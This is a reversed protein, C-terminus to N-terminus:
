GGVVDRALKITYVIRMFKTNADTTGLAEDADTPLHALPVDVPLTMSLKLPLASSETASPAQPLTLSTDSATDNAQGTSGSLVSYSTADPVGVSVGLGDTKGPFVRTFADSNIVGSIQTIRAEDGYNVIRYQGAETGADPTLVQRTSGTSQAWFAVATPVGVRLALVDWHAVLTIHRYGAEDKPPLPIGSTGDVDYGAAKLVEKVSLDNKGDADADVFSYVGQGDASGPDQQNNVDDKLYWYTVRYRPSGSADTAEATFEDLAENINVRMDTPMTVVDGEAWATGDPRTGQDFAFSVGDAVWIPYFDHGDSPNWVKDTASLTQGDWSLYADSAMAGELGWGAFTYNAREPIQIASGDPLSTHLSGGVDARILQDEKMDGTADTAHLVVEASWRAYLVTEDPAIGTQADLIGWTKTRTTQTGDEATVTETVPKGDGEFYKTGGTLADFWGELQYSVEGSAAEPAIMAGTLDKLTSGYVVDVLEDIDSPITANADEPFNDNFTVKGILMHMKSTVDTQKIGSAVEPDTLDNNPDDPDYKPDDPDYKPDDPDITTWHAYYTADHKPMETVEVGGLADTFWGAFAYGTRYVKPAGLDFGSKFPLTKQIAGSELASWDNDAFTGGMPVLTITTNGGQWIAFLETTESALGDEGLAAKWLADAVPTGDAEFYKVLAGDDSEYAGWGELVWGDIAPATYTRGAGGLAETIPAGWAIAYDGELNSASTAVEGEPVNDNLAITTQMFMKSTVDTQKTGAAVAGENAPDNNPDDPDYAPDEPDYKPDDPDISIWHAYYTTDRTPLLTDAGVSVGGIADTYWGAFTYGLRYVVPVKEAGITAGSQYHETFSDAGKVEGGCANWTINVVNGAWHAYLTFPLEHGQEDTPYAHKDWAKDSTGDSALYRHESVWSPDDTRTDNEDMPVDYFGELAFNIRTPLADPAPTAAGYTVTKTGLDDEEPTGRNADYKLSYDNAKWHAYLTHTVPVLKTAADTHEWVRTKTETGDTYTAPAGTADLYCTAGDEKGDYWGLFTYGEKAPQVKDAISPVADMYYATVSGYNDDSTEAGAGPAADFNADFSLETKMHVRAQVLSAGNADSSGDYSREWHAWYVAGSATPLASTKTIEDGGLAKTFWGVFTYDDRTISPIVGDLTAGAAYRTQTMKDADATDAFTGGQGKWTIQINDGTWHAYLTADSPKDWMKASTGDANAYKHASDYEATHEASDAAEEDYWGILTFGARTPGTGYDAPTPTRDGFTANAEYSQPMGGKADFTVKCGEASWRGYLTFADPALSSSDLKDWIRTREAGNKDTYTAPEGAADLYQTADAGKGDYWGLFINGDKSPATKGALDPVSRGYTAIADAFTANNGTGSGFSGEWNPDYTITTQMFLKSTVKTQALGQAADKDYAPDDPDYKPDDPNEPDNSTWHAYYTTDESPLPTAADVLTGGGFPASYWGVFTYGERTIVPINDQGIPAGSAFRKTYIGSSTTDFAGGQADFTLTITNGSWVAYLTADGDIDWLQGETPTGDAELYKKSTTDDANDAIKNAYWGVLTFGPRVPAAYSDPIPAAAAYTATKDAYTAPAGSANLGGQADYKVTYTKAKWQAYLTHPIEKGTEDTALVHKDWLKVSAGTADAYKTGQGLTPSDFYGQLEFGVAAPASTHAITSAQGYTIDVAEPLDGDTTGGNNDPFNKDISVTYTNVQWHAYLKQAETTDKDWIKADTGDSSIYRHSVDYADTHDTSSTQAEDYWGLLTYGDRTPMTKPVPVASDYTLTADANNAPHANGTPDQPFADDYSVKATKAVWVAHLSTSNATKDWVKASTGDANLYKHAKNYADDYVTSATGSEDYWGLLTWGTKQPAAYGVPTVTAADFTMETAPYTGATYGSVSGKTGTYDNDPTGFYEELHDFFTTPQYVDAQWVAYLTKAGSFARNDPFSTLDAQPTGDVTKTFYAASTDTSTEAYGMFTYGTRTPAVIADLTETDDKPDSTAYWGKGTWQYIEKTTDAAQTGGNANLTVKPVANRTWNAVWTQAAEVGSPASSALKASWLKTTADYTPSTLCVTSTDKRTFSTLTYGTREVSAIVDNPKLLHISAEDIGGDSVPEDLDGSTLANCGADGLAFCLNVGPNSSTLLGKAEESSVHGQENIITYETQSGPWCTRLWYRDGLYQVENPLGDSEPISEVRSGSWDPLGSANKVYWLNVEDEKGVGKNAYFLYQYTPGSISGNFNYVGESGLWSEIHDSFLRYIESDGLVERVSPVFLRDRSSFLEMNNSSSQDAGYFKNVAIISDVLSPMTEWIFSDDNVRNRLENEPGGWGGANPSDWSHNMVGTTPCDIFQFTLGVTDGMRYNGHNEAAMDQNFGIIRLGRMQVRCDYDAEPARSTVLAYYLEYIDSGPGAVGSGLARSHQKVEDLTFTRGAYPKVAESIPNESIALYFGESKPDKEDEEEEITIYGHNAWYYIKDPTPTTTAGNGDLTVEYAWQAYYTTDVAPCASASTIRTADSKNKDTYWGVFVAGQKVPVSGPMAVKNASTASVGTAFTTQTTLVDTAGDVNGGGLDWTLTIDAPEWQAYLTFADPTLKTVSDTVDFASLAVGGADTATGDAALYKTGGSASGYWGKFTWGAKTPASTYDSPKPITKGYTAIVSAYSGGTAKGNITTDGGVNPFNADFSVTSQMFLKSTVSTNKAGEADPDGTTTYHAYYTTNQPPVLTSTTVKMGGIAQTYWGDFDYGAKPNIAPIQEQTFTDGTHYGMTLSGASSNQFDGHEQADFTITVQIGIWYAYLKTDDVKDWNHASTGDANIYKTAGAPIPASEAIQTDYWGGFTLGISTPAKYDSPCASARGATQTATGFLTGDGSAADNLYFSATTKAYLKSTVQTGLGKDPDATSQWHAYFTKNQAWDPFLSTSSDVKAGGYRADYWGLFDYGERVPDSTPMIRNFKQAGWDSSYAESDSYTPQGGITGGQADFTYTYTDKQWHAYLTTNETKDWVKNNYPRGKADLYQTANNDKGDFWGILSYGITKPAVGSASACVSNYTMTATYTTRTSYPPSAAATPNALEDIMDNFTVTYRSPTWYAYLTILPWDGYTYDDDEYCIDWKEKTPTGNANYYKTGEGNEKTFYGQFDYGARTPATVSEMDEEYDFGGYSVYGEWWVLALGFSQPVWYAYLTADSTKDWVHASSGDEDYYKTGEFSSAGPNRIRDYYGRFVYGKRSPKTIEPMASGETAQVKDTGGTGTQKDFTVTYIGRWVANFTVSKTGNSSLQNMEEASITEGAAYVKTGGSIQWGAFGYGNKKLTGENALTHSSDYALSVSAPASGATNGNGNYNVTYSVPDYYLKLVLSGDGDINGSEKYGAAFANISYGIIAKKEATATTDTTGTKSVTDLLVYENKNRDKKYYEVKYASQGAQWQAKLLVAKNGLESLVEITSSSISNGNKYLTDIGDAKWGLFEYGARTPDTQLSYDSGRKVNERTSAINGYNVDFILTYTDKSGYLAWLESSCSTLPVTAGPLGIFYADTNSYPNKDYWAIVNQDQYTYSSKDLVVNATLFSDGISIPVVKDETVGKGDAKYNINYYGDTWHAYLVISPYAPDTGMFRYDGEVQRGSGDLIKHGGEKATYWGEVMSNKVGADSCAQAMISWYNSNDDLGMNQDLPLYNSKRSALGLSFYSQAKTDNLGPLNVNYTIYGENYYGEFNANDGRRGTHTITGDSDTVFYWGDAFLHPLGYGRFTFTDGNSSTLIKPPLPAKNSVTNTAPDIYIAFDAESGGTTYWKRMEDFITEGTVPHYVRFQADLPMDGGDHKRYPWVAINPVKGKYPRTFTEHLTFELSTIARNKVMADIQSMPEWEMSYDVYCAHSSSYIHTADQVDSMATYNYILLHDGGPKLAVTKGSEPVYGRYNYETYTRSDWASSTDEKFKFNLDADAGDTKFKVDVTTGANRTWHAYLTTLPVNKDWSRVSNGNEDLYRRGDTPHDYWGAFTFGNAVPNGGDPKPTPSGVSVTKSGYSRSKVGNENYVITQGSWQAYLTTAETKDWERVSSGDANLYKNGGARADYWGLLTLSGYSPGSGYGDPAPTPYYGPDVGSVGSLKPQYSYGEPGNVDYKINAWQAYLTFTSYSKDWKRTSKGDGDVYQNGGYKSDYWGNFFYGSRRPSGSPSNPTDLGMEVVRTNSGSLAGGNPDYTIQTGWHAYLTTNQEIRDWKKVAQNNDDIYQNGKGAASQDFWGAFYSGSKTPKSPPAPTNEGLVAYATYSFSNGGNSNFTVKTAWHAYLTCSNTTKDWKKVSAGSDNLYQTGGVAADYWGMFKLGSGHSPAMPASPTAEGFEAMKREVTYANGGNSNFTIWTGTVEYEAIIIIFNDSGGISCAIDKSPSFNNDADTVQVKAGGEGCSSLFGKFKHGVYAPPTFIKNVWDLYYKGNKEVFRVETKGLEQIGDTFPDNAYFYANRTVTARTNASSSGWQAYLTAGELRDWKESSGWVDWDAQASGYTKGGEAMDTWGLFTYGELTPEDGDPLPTDEGFRVTKPAYETPNPQVEEGEPVNLDYSITYEEDAEVTIGLTTGSTIPM